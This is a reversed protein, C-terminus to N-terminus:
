SAPAADGSDAQRVTAYTDQYEQGSLKQIERMVEDTISRLVYRDEELESYRTFDLPEGFTITVRGSLKPFNRGVPMIDRTGQIGVPIVPVQAEVIMRAIGTRGRHLRGDVSRTGEPYIGVLRGSRLLSVATDLASSTARGGSRDIPLQGIASMFSRRVWAGFGKGTVFQAKVLFTVHRRTKLPLFLSDLVSTHNAALLAGGTKPVNERGVVRIRFFLHFVPWVILMKALWYRMASWETRFGAPGNMAATPPAEATQAVTM